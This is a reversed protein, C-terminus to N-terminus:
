APTGCVLYDRAVLAAATGWIVAFLLLTLAPRNLLVKKTLILLM